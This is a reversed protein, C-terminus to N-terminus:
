VEVVSVAARMLCLDFMSLFVLSKIWFLKRVFIYTGYVDHADCFVEDDCKKAPPTSALVREFTKM